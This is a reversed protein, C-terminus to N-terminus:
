QTGAQAQLTAKASIEFVSRHWRNKHNWSRYLAKLVYRAFRSAYGLKTIKQRTKTKADISRELTKIRKEIRKLLMSALLDTRGEAKRKEYIERENQLQLYLLEQM